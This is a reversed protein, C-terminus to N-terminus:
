NADSGVVARAFEHPDFPRLDDAGEGVGVRVVPLGLERAVAVVIGGKATGDLKTLVLADLSLARHFERAQILGNQGTTADMVLVTRVPFPSEREAVRKVKVLEAMLDASTHLRGATDVLIIETDHTRAETITDFVVAAPDSGHPREVVPVEAREAWVRLQEIAAARFTDGSGIVVRKGAAALEKALKGVSTTKGTGNVGVMLITCRPLSFPDEGEVTVEAAIEDALRDIVAAADPLSERAALDRLRAVMETTAAIGMDAQILAAELEEWFVDDLDPGRRLLVNLHGRLDGRTKALGEGLRKYWPETM